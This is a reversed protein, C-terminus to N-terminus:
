PSPIEVGTIGNVTVEPNSVTTTGEGAVTLTDESTETVAGTSTVTLSTGVTTAGFTTAHNAGLTKTTLTTGVTGTVNLAGVATLSTAGGSDLIATLAGADRLTIANGAATVTGGFLDGAQALTISGGDDATLSSAGSVVLATAALQTIAGGLATDTLTGTATTNGLKLGGMRDVLDINLGNSSVAGVFHNANTLTINYKVDGPGSGGNDATLSSAGTVNVATSAAQTIAGGTATDTLTGTATTNGLVLGGASIDLLNINLGNSTVAGGFSDAAQALTIDYKVAGNAATLSTAGAVNVATSAAQTIAGGRSAATLNGTATTSGLVLGGASIDLLNINLGNSTIAGGFSDGAQALTINHKVDSTGSLGNDATLSSAGTVDLATSAGQTIAGEKATISLADADINGLTVAGATSNISLTGGVNLLGGSQQYGATSLNGTTSLNGAAMVLKGSDTLTTLVTNGAVGADYTVTTGTPITVAAVNSLDPIAGGAWNLATSWNGTAGGVWAVSALQTITGPASNVTVTYNNGNNGDNVTYSNVNLTSGNAGLVNKSAFSQSLTSLTDGNFVTGTVTPTQSSNTTGDYTKSDTVASITLAAPTITISSGATSLPYYNSSLGGNSSSGLALGTLTALTSDTQVNKSALNSPDGAGTVSFTQGALGTATLISGAVITTGDYVRTGSLSLSAPDMTLTGSGYSIIYGLQNSYLGGPTIIYSGANVAGQSTGGYSVTGLLNANPTTSYTVGNGGSYASGSYTTTANNATVTLPTMFSRLLPFTYGSYMVWTNAFDWGPNVNGNASTASTFNAQTQMQATSMGTGGASSAQGSTTIDWFSNSVTANNGGVLGGFASGSAGSGTVSGTAYSNSVTGGDNDGVLGGGVVRGSASDSGSVSGTAYSNSVTGNDNEGVLGGVLAPPPGGCTRCVGGVNSSSSVTGSVRGTAYSNSITGSDNIGVLGGIYASGTNSGSVSGTAYSNSVAGYNVGMLEGTFTQGSVSGGVLGVNQIVSGTGTEGFLGVAYGSPLNITLNSITHGLGNFSGTFGTSSNGIPTFGAGSNWSSTATADINSGLAYYGSLKASWSVTDNVNINGGSGGGTVSSTGNSSLLTVGTSNLDSSLTAGTIDGGSAAV